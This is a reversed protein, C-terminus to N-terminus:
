LEVPLKMYALITEAVTDIDIKETNIIHHATDEYIKRREDYLKQLDALFSKAGTVSPRSSDFAQIREASTEPKAFLYFVTGLRRLIERNEERVPAGGGTSLIHKNQPKLARLFNTEKERFYSWNHKKVMEDITMKAAQEILVDMEIHPLGTKERLLKAASSKGSGRMGILIISKNM